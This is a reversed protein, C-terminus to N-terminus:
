NELNIAYYAVQGNPYVGTLFLGDELNEIVKRLDDESNISVRNAKTIIYGEQIGAERLKGDQIDTVQIGNRIRLRAKDEDSVEEFSAGLTEFEKKQRVVDTSGYINRLTVSFEKKKGDRIATVTVEDGPRFRSIKEQLESVKDTKEGNVSIIVDGEEMGAAEAGSGEMTNAVYVGRPQDLNLEEALNSNVNRINVGLIGRQVKGYEMLDSVVKKVISAPVAFSYGTYSGTRSAIATNIGVLKGNQNVLAGGSNGANVAADTQIFSEISMSGRSSQRRALININRSKASVIGATVTSTLNFPNGVALVWEGIKLEDSNGYQMYPLDTAEIKLLALDTAEDKGVLVADFTRNDNLTVEINNTKEIVHNNTVIYGDESIIVGSGAGMVPQEQRPRSQGPGFFFDYLPNGSSRGAQSAVTKVHVVAHVSKEAAITLNPSEGQPSSPLSTYRAAPVTEQPVEVIEKEPKVFHSYAFVTVLASLVAVAFVSFVKKTRM